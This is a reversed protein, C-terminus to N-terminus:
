VTANVQAMSCSTLRRVASPLWGAMSAVLSILTLPPLSLFFFTCTRNVTDAMTGRLSIGLVCLPTAPRHPAIYSLGGPRDRQWGLINADRLCALIDAM